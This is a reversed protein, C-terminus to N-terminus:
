SLRKRDRKEWLDKALQKAKEPDGTLGMTSLVIAITGIIALEQAESQCGERWISQLTGIDDPSEWDRQQQMMRPWKEHRCSSETTWRIDCTADPKREVEGAEGKFVVAGYEGLLQAAQQHIPAYNPHFISQLTFRAATPNLLRALSHVPSRLGFHNRLEILKQLVPCFHQLGIFAFNGSDLKDKVQQWNECPTEGLTLLIDESYVRGTTHGRAGHMLVRYGNDALSLAALLYYPLFRRKGAYSSWDIDVDLNPANIHKRCANVFGAIEEPSEEKVRLLMLFAGIQEPSVKEKLILSMAREAEDLSLSRSGTKGKGLIRIYPAFAHEEINVLLNNKDSNM